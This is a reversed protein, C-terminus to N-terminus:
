IRRRRILALAGLSLGIASVPEPVSSAQVEFFLSSGVPAPAGDSTVEFHDMGAFTMTLTDGAASTGYFKSASGMLNNASDFAKITVTGDDDTGADGYAFTVADIPILFDWLQGRNDGYFRSGDFAAGSMSGLLPVFPDEVSIIPTAAGIPTVTVSNGGSTM